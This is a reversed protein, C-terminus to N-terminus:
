WGIESDTAEHGDPVVPLTDLGSLTSKGVYEVESRIINGGAALIYRSALYDGWKKAAAETAADVIFCAPWEYDPDDQPLSVDTLWVTYVYKM